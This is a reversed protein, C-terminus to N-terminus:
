KLERGNSYNAAVEEEESACLVADGPRLGPAATSAAPPRASKVMSRSAESCPPPAGVAAAAARSLAVLEVPLLPLANRESGGRAAAPPPPEAEASRGLSDDEDCDCADEPRGM